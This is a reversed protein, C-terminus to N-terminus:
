WNKSLHQAEEGHMILKAYTGDICSPPRESYTYRHEEPEDQFDFRFVIPPLSRDRPEDTQQEKCQVKAKHGWLKHICPIVWAFTSKPEHYLLCRLYIECFTHVSTSDLVQPTSM